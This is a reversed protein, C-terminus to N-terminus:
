RVDVFDPTSAAYRVGPTGYFDYRFSGDRYARLAVKVNGRRDTTKTALRVYYPEDTRRFGLHLQQGGYGVYRRTNWNSRTLTGYATILSGNHAPEPTANVTLRSAHQITAHAGIGSATTSGTAAVRIRWSGASGERLTRGPDATFTSICTVDHREGSCTTRTASLRARDNHASAAVRRVGSGTDTVRYTATFTKASTGVIVHPYNYSPHIQTQGPAPAAQAPATGHAISALALAGGVAAVTARTLKRM